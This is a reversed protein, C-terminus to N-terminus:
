CMLKSNSMEKSNRIQIDLIRSSMEVHTNFLFSFNVHGFYFEQIGM